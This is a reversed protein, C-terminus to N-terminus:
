HFRLDSPSYRLPQVVQGPSRAAALSPFINHVGFVGAHSGLSHCSRAWCDPAIVGSRVSLANGWLNACKRWPVTLTGTAPPTTCLSSIEDAELSSPLFDRSVSFPTIVHLWLRRRGVVRSRKVPFQLLYGFFSSILSYSELSGTRSRLIESNWLGPIRRTIAGSFKRVDLVRQHIV